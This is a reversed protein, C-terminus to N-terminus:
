SRRRAAGLVVLGGLLLTATAPLPIPAPFDPADGVAAWTGETVTEFAYYYSDLGCGEESAEVTAREARIESLEGTAFSLSANLTLEYFASCGEYGEDFSEYYTLADISDEDVTPFFLSDLMESFATALATEEEILDQFDQGGVVPVFLEYSGDDATWSYGAQVTAASATGAALVMAAAAMMTRM